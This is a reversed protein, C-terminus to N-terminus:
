RAPNVTGKIRDPDRVIAVTISKNHAVLCRRPDCPSQVIPKFGKSIVGGGGSLQWGPEEGFRQGTLIFRPNSKLSIKIRAHFRIFRIPFSILGCHLNHYVRSLAVISNQLAIGFTPSNKSSWPCKVIQIGRVSGSQVSVSKRVM